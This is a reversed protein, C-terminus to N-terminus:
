YALRRYADVYHAIRERKEGPRSEYYTGGVIFCAFGGAAAGHVVCERLDLKGKSVGSGLQEALSVVVGGVFNDGCGTTDGRREPHAALERVAEECVPMATIGMPPFIGKKAALKIPQAGETVIVAGTGQSIFWQISEEVTAAGSTKLAEDKDALLIDILPYADDGAGLKWKKGPASIDGLFDYVLNVVTIVGAERAPKLLETLSRHIPPVLGTGGFKVIDAKYFDAELDQPYFHNAAGLLNIFTREGHGDNYNPDSIVDTRPSPYDKKILRYEAFPIRKLLKELHDALEDNGRIGFYRVEAENGLVQATHALPVVSPGGLNKSTPPMGTIGALAKEYPKGIFREFDEAFVLRGISLGGDAERM